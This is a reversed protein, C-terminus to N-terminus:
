KDIFEKVKNALCGNKIIVFGEDPDYLDMEGDQNMYLMTEM